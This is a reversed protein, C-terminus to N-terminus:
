HRARSQLFPPLHLLDAPEDIDAVSALETHAVGAAALRARTTAMVQAHSWRMDAFLTQLLEATASRLGVLAYGGDLTPVFVAASSQLAAGARQLMSATLAPVDSGILLLPAAAAAFVQAMRTGLDGACQLALTVGHRQRAREFAPHSADPATWLTVQGGEARVAAAAQAVAHDLMAEALAAAGAAGLAPALRTKAAGAVPAKAMLAIDFRSM